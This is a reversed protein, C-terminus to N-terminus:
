SGEFFCRFNPQINLAMPLVELYVTLHCRTSIQAYTVIQSFFLPLSHCNRSKEFLHKIQACQSPTLPGSTRTQPMSRFVVEDDM